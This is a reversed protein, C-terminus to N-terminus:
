EQIENIDHHEIIVMSGGKNEYVSKLDGNPYYYKRHKEIGDQFESVSKLKGDPYYDMHSTDMGDQYQIERYSGDAQYHKANETQGAKNQITECELNGANNYSFKKSGDQLQGDIFNSIGLLKGDLFDRMEGNLKDHRYTASMKLNGNCDYFQWVGDKEGDMYFGKVKTDGYLEDFLIDKRNLTDLQSIYKQKIQEIAVQDKAEFKFIENYLSGPLEDGFVIMRDGYYFHHEIDPPTVFHTQGGYSHSKNIAHNFLRLFEANDDESMIISEVIYHGSIKSIRSVRVDVTDIIEINKFDQVVRFIIDDIKPILEKYMGEQQYNGYIDQSVIGTVFEKDFGISTAQIGNDHVEILLKQNTNPAEITINAYPATYSDHIVLDEDKWSCAGLMSILETADGNNLVSDNITVKYKTAPHKKLFLHASEHWSLDHQNEMIMPKNNILSNNHTRTVVTNVTTHAALAMSVCDSKTQCNTSSLTHSVSLIIVTGILLFQLTTKKM